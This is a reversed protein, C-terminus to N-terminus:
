KAELGKSEQHQKIIGDIADLKPTITGKLQNGAVDPLLQAADRAAKVDAAAGVLDQVAKKALRVTKRWTPVIIKSFDVKTIKSSAPSKRTAHRTDPKTPSM